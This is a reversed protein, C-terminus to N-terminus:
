AKTDLSFSMPNGGESIQALTYQYMIFLIGILILFQKKM